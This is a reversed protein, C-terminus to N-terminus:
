ATVALQHLDTVVVHAGHERLTEGHGDRDVGIVLGFGGARGAAVGSEADEVVVARVPATGLRRAAELFMDPAPKGPLGLRAIEAGDVRADFLAQIDAAELVEAANQSSSVLATRLGYARVQRVFEVTTDYVMVGHQRLHERFYRNKRNGLGCVTEADPPDDPTGELPAIGRSALFSRVGDYRSKGDVYTRYDADVDFPQFPVGLRRARAALYEDFLRKWAGAHVVATQTIVGDLDFLVADFASRSLREAILPLLLLPALVTRLLSQLVLGDGRDVHGEWGLVVLDPALRAAQRPIEELPDGTGFLPRVEFAAPESGRPRLRETLERTWAAWEHQPGDLYRPAGLRGPERAGARVPELYLVHLEAKTQHALAVAPAVSRNLTPSGDYPLLITQPHWPGSGREPPVLLLPCAAARLLHRALPALAGRTKEAATYPCMVIMSAAHGRALRLIEEGPDGRAATLVGGRLQQPTLRLAELVSRAPAQVEGEGTYLLQITAGSLEHVTAAVPLAAMAQPSGDLPVIIIELKM